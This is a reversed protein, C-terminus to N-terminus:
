SQLGENEILNLFQRASKKWDFKEAQQLGRLSFELRLEENDYLKKMAKALDEANHPNVMLAADGVVEPLSGLASTIVPCACKMAELPPLGFGEYLSPFVLALASNYYKVLEENTVYGKFVVYEATGLDQLKAFIKKFQWGRAGIIVLHPNENKKKSSDILLAHAELTKELNKRPELTGVCLFFKKPLHREQKWVNLKVELPVFDSGVSPYVVDIKEKNLSFKKVIDNKTNQSVAIIFSSKKLAKGITMKEILVAKKNHNKPFLLAILDHVVTCIKLSKPAIAPIIYSTPAIFLDVKQSLINKLTAWHWRIGKVKVIQIEANKYTDFDNVAMNTYLLYENKSDQKLLAHVLHYTYWGKGTKEGCADRIDIAIKM